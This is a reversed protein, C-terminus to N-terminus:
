FPAALGREVHPRVVHERLLEDVEEAERPVQALEENTYMAVQEPGLPPVLHLRPVPPAPDGAVVGVFARAPRVPARNGREANASAKCRLGRRDRRLKKRGFRPRGASPHAASSSLIASDFITTGASPALIWMSFPLSTTGSFGIMGKMSP